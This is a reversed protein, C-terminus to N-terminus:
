ETKLVRSPRNWRGARSKWFGETLGGVANSLISTLQRDNAINIQDNRSLETVGDLAAGTVLIATAETDEKDFTKGLNEAAGKTIEKMVRSLDSAESVGGASAAKVTVSVTAETAQKLLEKSDSFKKLNAITAGVVAGTLKGQLTKGVNAEKLNSM